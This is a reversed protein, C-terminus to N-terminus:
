LTVRPATRNEPAAGGEVVDSRQGDRRPEIKQVPCGVVSPNFLKPVPVIVLTMRHTRHLGGGDSVPFRVNLAPFASTVRPGRNPREVRIRTPLPPRCYGRRVQSRSASVERSTSRPAVPRTVPAHRRLCDGSRRCGVAYGNPRPTTGVRHAEEVRAVHGKPSGCVRSPHGRDARPRVRKRSHQGRPSPCPLVDAQIVQRYLQPASGQIRPGRPWKSTLPTVVPPAIRQRDGLLPPVVKVPVYVQHLASVSPLWPSSGREVSRQRGRRSLVAHRTCRPTSRPPVM